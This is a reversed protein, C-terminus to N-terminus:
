RKSVSFQDILDQRPIELQAHFGAKEGDLVHTQPQIQDEPRDEQSEMRDEGLWDTFVIDIIKSRANQHGKSDGPQLSLFVAGEWELMEFHGVVGQNVILACPGASAETCLLM